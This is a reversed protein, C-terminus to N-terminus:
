HSAQVSDAAATEEPQGAFYDFLAQVSSVRPDAVFRGGIKTITQYPVGSAEAIRPWEGKADDLRRLVTKLM